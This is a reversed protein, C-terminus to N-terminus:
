YYKLLKLYNKNITSKYNNTKQKNINRVRQEVAALGIIYPKITKLKEVITTFGKETNIIRLISDVVNTVTSYQM